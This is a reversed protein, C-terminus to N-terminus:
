VPVAIDFQLVEEKTGLSEYLRIAPTDAKDAQVFIVYAKRRAALGRLEDM